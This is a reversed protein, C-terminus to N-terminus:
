GARQARKAARAARQQAAPRSQNGSIGALKDEFAAQDEDQEVTTSSEAVEADEDSTIDPRPGFARRCQPHAIPHEAAAALSVVLGHAKRDDDHTTWGCRHGDFVEVYGIGAAHCENLTGANYAVASKTRAAMEAYRGVPVHTGDAYIVRTLDYEARLKDALREAAQRATRGGAVAKTVETRSAERVARVMAESARGAEESRKLFDNYLDTALSTLAQAHAQTWSSGGMAEVGEVYRPTLHQDLFAQVEAAARAKFATIEAQFEQIWADVLPKRLYNGTLVRVREEELDDYAAQLRDALIQAAEEPDLVPDPPWEYAM